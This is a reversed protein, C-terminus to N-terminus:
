VAMRWSFLIMLTNRPILNYDHNKGKGARPSSVPPSSNSTGDSFFCYLQIRKGVMACNNNNVFHLFHIIYLIESRHLFLNQM